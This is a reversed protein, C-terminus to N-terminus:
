AIDGFRAIKEMLGTLRDSNKGLIRIVIDRDATRTVGGEVGETEDIMGRVASIWEESRPVHVQLMTALHTYGEYMGYDQMDTQSPEYRTNDYYILNEGQYIRVRNRFATYAFAEGHAIRGATLVETMILQSTEDELYIESQSRYDSQGFPITPLPTYYLSADKAIRIRVEREAHGEEMRHIKEFAQSVFEMHAGEEITFSFEQRDGAMIGASATLVMVTMRDKKEYFPRMVKFPATFSVDSLITKGDKYSATLHLRSTKGFKNEEM